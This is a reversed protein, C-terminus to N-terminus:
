KGGDLFDQYEQLKEWDGDAALEAQKPWTGPDALRFRDGGIELIEKLRDVSTNAMERWTNVGNERMLGAIKPGIGEVATLDDQKWRKLLGMKIMLKEVKADSEGSGTNGGGLQKQASILEDWDGAAALAAQSPWTAPDVIRYKDGGADDLIKRLSDESHNSLDTWTNIGANNLVENMKPGIGEVVQLNDDTLAAYINSAGGEKKAPAVGLSAATNAVTGAIGTSADSVLSQASGEKIRGKMLALDSEVSARKDHCDGLDVDLQSNRKKLRAIEAELEASNDTGGGRLLWGILGGLLFPLLWALWWPLSCFSILLIM